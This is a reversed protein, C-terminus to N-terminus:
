YWGGYKKNFLRLHNAQEMLLVSEGVAEDGLHQCPIESDFLIQDILMKVGAFFPQGAGKQQECAIAFLILWLSHDGFYRLLQQRFHDPCSSGTHIEKHNFEPFKTEDFVGLPIN